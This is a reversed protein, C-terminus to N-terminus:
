CLRKRALLTNRVPVPTPSPSAEVELLEPVPVEGETPMIPAEIPVIDLRQLGRPTSPLPSVRGQLNYAAAEDEELREIEEPFLGIEYGTFLETRRGARAGRGSQRIATMGVSSPASESAVPIAQGSQQLLPPAAEMFTTASSPAPVDVVAVLGNGIPVAAVPSSSRRPSSAMQLNGAATASCDVWAMSRTTKVPELACGWMPDVRCHSRLDYVVM